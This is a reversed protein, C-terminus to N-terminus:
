QSGSYCGIANLPMPATYAIGRNNKRFTLQKLEDCLVGSTDTNMLHRVLEISLGM